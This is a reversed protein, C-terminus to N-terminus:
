ISIDFEDDETEPMMVINGDPAIMTNEIDEPDVDHDWVYEVIRRENEMMHDDKDVPKQPQTKGLQIAKRPDPFHYSRKEFLLYDMRKNRNKEEPYYRFTMLRPHNYGEELTLLEGVKYIGGETEVKSTLRKSGKIAFIGNDVFQEYLSRKNVDTQSENWASPDAICIDHSRGNLYPNNQEEARIFQSLQPITGNEFLCAVEYLNPKEDVLPHRYGDYDVWIWLVAHPIAPHTDVAMILFGKDKPVEFPDILWPYEERYMKYVHGGRLTRKGHIRIAVDVEDRCQRKIKDIIEPTNVPNDYTSMEITYFDPDGKEGKLWIENETWTVGNVATAGIRMQGKTSIIRMMNETWYEQPCEEDVYIYDRASGGHADLDQDTSMFEIMSGNNYKIHRKKENDYGFYKVDAKTTWKKIEPGVIKEVGNPFDVAVVRMDLAPSKIWRGNMLLNRCHERVKEDIAEESLQELNNKQLPHWGEARAVIDVAHTCSKGSRNGGSIGGFTRYAHLFYWYEKDNPEYLYRGKANNYMDLLKAYELRKKPDLIDFRSKVKGFAHRKNCEKCWLGISDDSTFKARTLDKNCVPCVLTDNLLQVAELVKRPSEDPKRLYWYM